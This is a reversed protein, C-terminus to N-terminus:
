LGYGWQDGMSAEWMYVYMGHNAKRQSVLRYIGKLIPWRQKAHGLPFELIIYPIYMKLATSLMPLGFIKSEKLSNGSEKGELGMPFVQYWEWYDKQM